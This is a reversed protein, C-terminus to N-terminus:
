GYRKMRRYETVGRHGRPLFSIGEKLSIAPAKLCVIGLTAPKVRERGYAELKHHGDIVFECWAGEASTTLVVPREKARIQKCYYAVREENLSERTQTCVLNRQEYPYYNVLERNVSFQSYYEVTVISEVVTSPTYTLCYTGPVFVALLPEIEEALPRSEEVEGAVFEGLQRVYESGCTHGTYVLYQGVSGACDDWNLAVPKGEVLLVTEMPGGRVEILGKGESLCVLDLRVGEPLNRAQWMRAVWGADLQSQLKRMQKELTAKRKRRSKTLRHLEVDLRLFEARPDGHEELWDAYVLRLADDDPQNFIARQFQFDEHM